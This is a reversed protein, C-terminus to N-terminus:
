SKPVRKYGRAAMCDEVVMRRELDRGFQTQSDTASQRADQQCQYLDRRAEAESVGPKDLITNANCGTLVLVSFVFAKRV